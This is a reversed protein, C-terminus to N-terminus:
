LQEEISRDLLSRIADITARDEGEYRATEEGRENILVVTPQVVVQYERILDDGSRPSVERVPIGKTGAERVLRFIEGCGCQTTALRPDAFLLVSSQSNLANAQTVARGTHALPQWSQKYVVVAAVIVGIALVGIWKVRM